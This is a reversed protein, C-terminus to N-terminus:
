DRIEVWGRFSESKGNLGAEYFYVGPGIKEDPWSNQYGAGFGAIKEGWRNYINLYSLSKGRFSLQRNEPNGRTLILNPVGFELSRSTKCVPQGATNKVQIDAEVEPNNNGSQLWISKGGQDLVQAGSVTWSVAEAAPLNSQIKVQFTQGPLPIEPSSSLSCEFPVTFLTDLETTDSCNKADM